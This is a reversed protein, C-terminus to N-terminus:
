GFGEFKPLIDTLSFRKLMYIILIILIFTVIIGAEPVQKTGALLGEEIEVRFGSDKFILFVTQMLNWSLHYGLSWMLSETKLVILSLIIGIIFANFFATVSLSSTSSYNFFHLISFILSSIFVAKTKSLKDKLKSLLYDRFLSEEFLAVAGFAFIFSLLNLFFETSIKFELILQGANLVVTFIIYLIILIFAVVFGEVFLKWNLKKKRIMFSDLGKNDIIKKALIVLIFLILNTIGIGVGQIYM